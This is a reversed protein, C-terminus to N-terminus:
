KILASIAKFKENGARRCLELLISETSTILAGESKIREIAINKDTEKRSSICDAVVVPTYGLGILDLVTQLVCVHTEIGAIIIFKRNLQHLANMVRGEDCCSFSIKEVPEVDNILDKVPLITKGLGKSYQETLIIPIDLIQMGRILRQINNLLADKGAMHPFLRDQMDIIMVASEEQKIRM